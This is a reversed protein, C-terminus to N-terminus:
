HNANNGCPLVVTQPTIFRGTLGMTKYLLAWVPPSAAAVANHERAVLLVPPLSIPWDGLSKNNFTTHRTYHRHGYPQRDQERVLCRRCVPGSEKEWRQSHNTTSGRREGYPLHQLTQKEPINGSNLSITPFWVSGTSARKDAGPSM